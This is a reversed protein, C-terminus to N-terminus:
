EDTLTTEGYAHLKKPQQLSNSFGDYLPVHAPAQGPVRGYPTTSPMPPMQPVRGYESVGVTDYHSLASKGSGLHTSTPRTRGRSNKRSRGHTRTAEAAAPLSTTTTDSVRHKSSGGELGVAVVTSKKQRRQRLLLFAILAIVLLLSLTVGVAVGAAGSNVPQAAPQQAASPAVSTTTSADSSTGTSSSQATNTAPSVATGSSSSTTTTTTSNAGSPAPTAPTEDFAAHDCENYMVVQFPTITTGDGFLPDHSPETGTPIWVPRRARVSSCYVTNSGADVFCDALSLKVVCQYAYFPNNHACASGLHAQPVTPMVISSDFRVPRPLPVTVTATTGNLEAVGHYTAVCASESFTVLSGYLTVSGAIEDTSRALQVRGPDSYSLYPTMFVSSMLSADDLGTQWHALHVMTRSLPVAGGPVPYRSESDAQVGDLHIVTALEPDYVTQSVASVPHSGRSACSLLKGSALRCASAVESGFSDDKLAFQAYIATQNAAEVLSSTGFSTINEGVAMFDIDTEVEEVAAEPITVTVLLPVDSSVTRVVVVEDGYSALGARVAVDSPKVNGYDGAVSVQLVIM